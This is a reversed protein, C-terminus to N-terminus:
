VTQVFDVGKPYPLFVILSIRNNRVFKEQLATKARQLRAVQRFNGYKSRLLNGIGMGAVIINDPIAYTM